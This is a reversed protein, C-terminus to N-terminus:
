CIMEASFVAWFEFEDYFSDVSFFRFWIRFMLNGFLSWYFEMGESKVWNLSQWCSSLDGVRLSSKLEEKFFSCWLRTSDPSFFSFENTSQMIFFSVSFYLSIKDKISNQLAPWSEFPDAFIKLSKSFFSSSCLDSSSDLLCCGPDPIFFRSRGYFSCEYLNSLSPESLYTLSPHYHSFLLKKANSDFSM